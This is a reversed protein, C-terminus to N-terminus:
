KRALANLQEGAGGHLTGMGGRHLTGIAPPPAGFRNVDHLSGFRRAQHLARMRGMDAMGTLTVTPNPVTSEQNAVSQASALSPILTYILKAAPILLLGTVVGGVVAPSPIWYAAAAAMGILIGDVIMPANPNTTGGAAAATTGADILYSAAVSVLVGAGLATLGVLLGSAGNNRRRSSPWGRVHGLTRGHKNRRPYSRTRGRPSKVQFVNRSGSKRSYRRTSKRARRRTRRANSNAPKAMRGRRGRIPTAPNRRRRRSAGVRRKKGGARKRRKAM